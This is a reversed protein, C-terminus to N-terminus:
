SKLADTLIAVQRELFTYSGNNYLVFDSKSVKDNLPMQRDMRARAQTHTVGKAALRQFQTIESCSVCVTFDFHNELNKEFLLPIEAVWSAEPASAMAKQWTQGVRPHLLNELWQLAEPNHFVVGALASREIGGSEAQMEPGFREVIASITSADEALLQRVIADSDLRQFGLAELLGGVTSKGCGIGGTLGLRM